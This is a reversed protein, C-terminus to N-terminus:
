HLSVENDDKVEAPEDGRDKFHIVRGAGDMFLVDGSGAVVNQPHAPGRYVIPHAFGPKAISPDLLLLRQNYNFDWGVGFPGSYANHDHLTRAFSIGQRRGPISLDVTQQDFSGNLPNVSGATSPVAAGGCLPAPNPGLASEVVDAAVASGNASSGEM